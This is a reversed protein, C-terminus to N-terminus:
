LDVDIYGLDKFQSLQVIDRTDVIDFEGYNASSRELLYTYNINDHACAKIHYGYNARFFKDAGRVYSDSCRVDYDFFKSYLGYHLHVKVKASDVFVVYRPEAAFVADLLAKDELTQMARYITMSNYEIYVVDFPRIKTAITTATYSDTILVDADPRLLQFANACGEDHDFAVHKEIRSGDITVTSMGFGCFVELISLNMDTIFSNVHWVQEAYTLTSRLSSDFWHQMGVEDATVEEAEPEPIYFKFGKYSV